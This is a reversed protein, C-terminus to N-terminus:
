QGFELSSREREDKIMLTSSWDTIIANSQTTWYSEATRCACAVIHVVILFRLRPAMKAGISSWRIAWSRVPGQCRGVADSFAVVYWANRPAEAEGPTLRITGVM